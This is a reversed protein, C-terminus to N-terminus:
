AAIQSPTSLDPETKLHVLSRDLARAYLGITHRATDGPDFRVLSDTMIRQVQSSRFERPQSYFAMAQDIAWLFGTADFHKFLFGTGHSAAPELHEVCDRIAGADHAIPLAGYRQGIKCPLACPDLHMPMLVFDAGGYALRYRRSDFDCVAVRDTAHLRGILARMHEQFDGDAIFVVQLRQERYRDLIVPLTDAMLRCGPRSGDLRTPWFCVPATSDMRLNLTEQLHLKNFLKGAYHADPGYPRMLARDTAPNFSPDPAPAVACLNGARLKNQLEAKPLAAAHYNREDTLANLFTQSLTNASHAAFVGSTLLDLPNTNRTEPYNVPMRSYFCHQWFSAADIGREEITSLLLRPSDLRYLTFLCSIGNRRAMAPILGTMWDYCHILDPQVEPIIRNIVERQFALAIRINEWDTTLFLKPHYYFSRDQALHIRNHPLEHPRNHIDIGSMRQANAKFVNRYNPMALHVDVGHEYLAHIQAACIDGLGGARASISRSAPGMGHPVFTVEPTVVLIRPNDVQSKM